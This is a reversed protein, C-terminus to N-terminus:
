WPMSEGKYDIFRGNDAPTLGDIVTLMQAVSDGTKLAGPFKALMENTGVLGPHLMILTVGRKPTEYALTHMYMNLAAKSAKYHYLIPRQSGAVFSGSDSSMVVIQKKNSAIVNDMFAQCMKMPGIANVDIMYKGTDFDLKALPRIGSPGKAANLLLVDIPEGSYKNALADIGTHDTVDLKEIVIDPDAAALARLDDAQDPNRVTAIIKWDRASLQRVFELGIGRNSGTILVTPKPMINKEPAPKADAVPIFLGAISGAMLGIKVVRTIFIMIRTDV